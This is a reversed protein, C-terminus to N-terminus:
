RDDDAGAFATKIVKNTCAFRDAIRHANATVPESRPHGAVEFVETQRRAQAKPPQPNTRRWQRSRTSSAHATLCLSWTEPHANKPCCIFIV